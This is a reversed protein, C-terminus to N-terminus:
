SLLGANYLSIYIVMGSRIRNVQPCGSFWLGKM